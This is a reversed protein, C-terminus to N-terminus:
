KGPFVIRNDRGGRTDSLVFYCSIVHFLMFTGRATRRRTAGRGEGRTEGGLERAGRGEEMAGRGM